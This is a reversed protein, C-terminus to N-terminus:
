KGGQNAAVVQGKTFDGAAGTVVNLKADKTMALATYLAVDGDVGLRNKFPLALDEIVHKAQATEAQRDLDEGRLREYRQTLEESSPVIKTTQVKIIKIGLKQVLSLEPDDVLPAKLEELIKREFLEQGTLAEVDSLHQATERIVRRMLDVLAKEVGVKGEEVSTYNLLFDPDVEWMISTTIKMRVQYPLPQNPAPTAPVSGAANPAAQNSVLIEMPERLETTTPKVPIEDYGMFPRPLILSFGEPLIFAKRRAGLFLPLGVHAEKVKAIAMVYFYVIALLATAAATTNTHGYIRAGLLWNLFGFVVAVAGYLAWYGLFTQLPGWAFLTLARSLKPIRATNQAM